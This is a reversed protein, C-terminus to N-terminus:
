CLPGVARRCDEDRPLLRSRQPRLARLATRAREEPPLALGGPLKPFSWIWLHLNKPTLQGLARIGEMKWVLLQLKHSPGPDAPQGPLCCQKAKMWAPLHPRPCLNFLGAEPPFVSVFVSM